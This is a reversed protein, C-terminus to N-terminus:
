WWGPRRAAAGCIKSGDSAILIRRVQSTKYTRVEFPHDVGRYLHHAIYHPANQQNIVEIADNVAIVGDGASFVTTLDETILCGIITTFWTDRAFDTKSPVLAAEGVLAYFRYLAERLAVENFDGEAFAQLCYNTLFEGTLMAGVESHPSSGCGDCVVAVMCDGKRAVKYYDQNNYLLKRHTRGIISASAVSFNM